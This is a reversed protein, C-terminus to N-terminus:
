FTEEAEDKAEESLARTLPKNSELAWKEGGKTSARAGIEILLRKATAEDAGIVNKLTEFTRWEVKRNGARNMPMNAPTLLTTLMAKRREELKRKPRDEILWKYGTQISIVIVGGIIGAVIKDM